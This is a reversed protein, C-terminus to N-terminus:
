GFVKQLGSYVESAGQIKDQNAVVAKITSENKGFYYGGVAAVLIWVWSNM